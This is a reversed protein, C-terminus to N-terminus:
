VLRQDTGHFSKGVAVRQNLFVSSPPRNGESPTQRRAALPHRHLNEHTRDSILILVQISGTKIIMNM